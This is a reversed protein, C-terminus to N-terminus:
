AHTASHTASEGHGAQRAVRQEILLHNRLVLFRLLTGILGQIGIGLLALFILLGLVEYGVSQHYTRNGVVWGILAMTLVEAACFAGFFQLLAGSVKEWGAPVAQRARPVLLGGAALFIAGVGGGVVAWVWDLTHMSATLFSIAVSFILGLVMLSGYLRGM